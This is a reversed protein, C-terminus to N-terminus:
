GTRAIVVVITPQLSMTTQIRGVCVCVTVTESNAPPPLLPGAPPINNRQTQPFYKKTAAAASTPVNVM